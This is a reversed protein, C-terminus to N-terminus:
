IAILITNEVLFDLNEAFREFKRYMVTKAIVKESLSLLSILAAIRM